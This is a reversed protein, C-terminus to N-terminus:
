DAKQKVRLNEIGFQCLNRTISYERQFFYHDALYKLVLPNRPNAKFGEEFYKAAEKRVEFQKVNKKLEIIGLSTLAMSNKPDLSITKEFSFKARTLDGLNLHCLGIAFWIDPPSHPNEMVMEKLSALSEKVNGKNYDIIARVLLMLPKNRITAEDQNVQNKAAKLVEEAAKSQGQAIHYFCMSIVSSPYFATISNAKDIMRVFQQELKKRIDKDQEEEYLIM